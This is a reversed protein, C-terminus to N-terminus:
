KGRGDVSKGIDELFKMVNEKEENIKDSLRKNEKTDKDPTPPFCVLIIQEQPTFTHKLSVQHSCANERSVSVKLSSDVGVDLGVVQGGRRQDNGVCYGASDPDVKVLLGQTLARVTSATAWRGRSAM